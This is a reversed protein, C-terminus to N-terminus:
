DKNIYPSFSIKSINIPPYLLSNGESDEVKFCDTIRGVTEVADAISRSAGLVRCCIQRLLGVESEKITEGEGHAIVVDIVDPLSKIKDIGGVSAITGPKMLFSVNWGLYGNLEPSVCGSVEQRSDSVAYEIMSKLPNYGCIRELIKYELSGTLRYGIDYVLCEGNEVKCQMFMMGNKIGSAEVMKEVKTAVERIYYETHVSPFTYGVPLPIINKALNEMHRDGMMSFYARGNQFYWFVTVEEGQLYPEIVVKGTKSYPLAKNIADLAEIKNNCLVIGRAGSSDAPKILIPYKVAGAMVDELSIDAVVPVGFDRCLRKYKTKDIFTEFQAKTGYCPLGTNQCIEAYYPLLLDVFGVFVGDIHKERIFESVADVDTTSIRYHEDAIQKAPSDKVDNYDIVTVHLGMKHAQKVIECSIKMGGLVLLKKKNGTM